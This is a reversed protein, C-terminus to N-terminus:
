ASCKARLIYREHHEFTVIAHTRRPAAVVLPQVQMRRLTVRCQREETVRSAIRAVRRAVLDDRVEVLICPREVDSGVEPLVNYAARRCCTIAPLDLRLSRRPAGPMEDDSGADVANGPHWHM